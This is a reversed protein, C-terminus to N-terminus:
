NIRLGRQTEPASDMVRWDEESEQASEQILSEIQVIAARGLIVRRSPPFGRLRGVFDIVLSHEEHIANDEPMSGSPFREGSAM